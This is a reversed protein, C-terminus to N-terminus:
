FKLFKSYSVSLVYTGKPLGNQFRGVHDVRRYLKRFTPLAATRMWVILDENEYGNNETSNGNLEWVSRQWNPPPVSNDRVVAVYCCALKSNKLDASEGELKL